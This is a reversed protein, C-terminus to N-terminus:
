VVFLGFSLFLESSYYVGNLFMEVVLLIKCKKKNNIYEFIDYGDVLFLVLNLFYLIGYRSFEIKVVFCLFCSIFDFFM